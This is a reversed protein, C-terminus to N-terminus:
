PPLSNEAKKKIFTKKNRRYPHDQPLFQRHCDFYSTKRSHNLTFAKSSDMCIPCGLKGMTMWGSLMGYVPFDNITWMLAAKM